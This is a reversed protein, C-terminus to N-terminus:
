ILGEGNEKHWKIHCKPCLWRVDLPKTYNDHHGQIRKHSIGCDECNSSKKIDGRRLSNGLIIHASRKIHNREVWKKASKAYAKKGQETQAYARRAKVRLPHNSRGRDYELYYDINKERNDRSDKKTCEKCKNLRGDAMGKHKYFFSLKKETGCKFCIKSNHM